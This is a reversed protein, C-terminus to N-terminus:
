IRKFEIRIIWPNLDWSGIGNIKEWLNKYCEQATYPMHKWETTSIDGDDLVCYKKINGDKTVEVVGERLCDEQTISKLREIRIDTVELFIRAFKRRLFMSSKYTLKGDKCLDDFWETEEPPVLIFSSDAKFRIKRSFVKTTNHLFNIDPRWTERCWIIDGVQPHKISFANPDGDYEWISRVGDKYGDQMRTFNVYDSINPDTNDAMMEMVSDKLKRPFKVIRRTETKTGDLIAQVMPQSFLMPIEIPPKIM